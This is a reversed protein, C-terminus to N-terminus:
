GADQEDDDDDAPDELRPLGCHTEVLEAIQCLRGLLRGQLQPFRDILNEAAEYVEGPDDADPTKQVLFGAVTLGKKAHDFPYLVDDFIAQFHEVHQHLQELTKRIRTLLKENGSHSEMASFLKGLALKDDRLTLLSDVQDNLRRFLDILARIEEISIKAQRIIDALEPTQALRLGSCLRAAAAQEFPLLQSILQAQQEDSSERVSIIEKATTLPVSFEDRTIRVDTQLMAEALRVELQRTDCDDYVQWAEAFLAQRRLMTERAQKLRSQVAAHNSVPKLAEEPSQFPRYLVVHGQFFRNLAKWADQQQQLRVMLEDVPHIDSKKLDKGFVDTYFDWTVAKALADFKRFLQAAPLGLQFIGDAKELAASAIRERDCPHTDFVGTVSEIMIEDIAEQGKETLQDANLLILKPLDDGLRGETYFTALDDMAGHYATGLVHLQRATTAFSRSGAFRAEYRDADFEMQRMLFGSVTHGMIMLCWLIGRTFWVCVRVVYLTWGIRLDLKGSWEELKEDWIDREYVVRAFWYNISRIVHSLRMGAGQAFHGFEHALVGGFQRMTLGAALPMGITLVLDNGFFSRLGSRFGASANIDCDIDIRSPVPANVIRCIRTVFEFLLPEDSRKVSRRGSSEATRSFLPKLMFVVLVVGSLIPTLYLLVGLIMAKGSQRGSSQATATIIGTNSVAHHWVGTAVAVILVLYIVPLLVMLLAVLAIGTKYLGSVKVPEIRSGSFAANVRGRLAEEDAPRRSMLFEAGSLLGSKRILPVTSQKIIAPTNGSSQRTSESASASHVAHSAIQLPSGGSPGEPKASTAVKDPLSNATTATAASKSSPVAEQPVAEVASAPVRIAESCKPCRIKKGALEDRLTMRSTCAPCHFSIAM